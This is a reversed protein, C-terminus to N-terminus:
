ADETEAPAPAIAAGAMDALALAHAERRLRVMNERLMKLAPRFFPRAPRAPVNRTVKRDRQRGKKDRGAARREGKQFAKNGFEVFYATFHQKQLDKTLFGVMALARGAKTEIKIAEDSALGHRLKGTRNPALSVLDRQMQKAATEVAKDLRKAVAEQYSKLRADLAALGIVGSM